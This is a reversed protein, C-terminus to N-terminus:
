FYPTTVTEVCPLDASLRKFCENCLHKFTNNTLKGWHIITVINKTCEECKEKPLYTNLTDVDVNMGNLDKVSM